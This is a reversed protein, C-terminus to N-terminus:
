DQKGLYRYLVEQWWSGSIKELLVPNIPERLDSSSPLAIGYHQREFSRPLVEVKGQLETILLYRLLPEDYVVTDVKGEARLSALLTKYTRYALRRKRLYGEAASNAVTAVRVRPLDEPGRISSELRDVTLASTVAAIFASIAIIGVFMWIVAVVRGGFTVPAKDGYGVTTMTVAAWWFGSFIGSAPGGGFQSPNRQKEFLWILAGLVLLVLALLAIVQLFQVSFIGRVLSFWGGERRKAVAIGLGTTYFPHTFDFLREREATITLAAVAADLSGDRVRDLLGQLDLERLEYSYHLESAIARWLDISIGSWSGDPNKIAFPPAQKTGVILKRSASGQVEGAGTSTMLTMWLVLAAVITRQCGM